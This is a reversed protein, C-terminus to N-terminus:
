DRALGGVSSYRRAPGRRVEFQKRVLRPAGTFLTEGRLGKMAAPPAGLRRDTALILSALTTVNAMRQRVRKTVRNPLSHTSSALQWSRKRSLMSDGILGPKSDGRAGIQRRVPSAHRRFVDIRTVSPWLEVREAM